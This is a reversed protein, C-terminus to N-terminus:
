TEFTDGNFVRFPLNQRRRSVQIQVLVNSFIWWSETFSDDVDKTKWAMVLAAVMPLGSILVIFSFWLWFEGDGECYGFSEGTLDNVVVRSWGFNSVATWAALVAV